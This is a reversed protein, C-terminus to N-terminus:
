PDREGASEADLLWKGVKWGHWCGVVAMGCGIVLSFVVDDVVSYRTIGSKLEIGFMTAFGALFGVLLGSVISTSRTLKNRSTLSSLVYVNLIGVISGPLPSVVVNALAVLALLAYPNVSKGGSVTPHSLLVVFFIGVWLLLSAVISALVGLKIGRKRLESYEAKSIQYVANGINWGHGDGVFHFGM